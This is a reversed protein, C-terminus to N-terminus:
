RVLALEARDDTRVAGALRRHHIDDGALRPRVLALDEEVALDVQGLEVLAGDGIEADPALELLRRYELVERHELIELQRQPCRAADPARQEIAHPPLMARADLIDEDGDTEGVPRTGNGAREAVPLLLPELDAHQEDLVRLEQQEVLGDRAHGIVLGSVM